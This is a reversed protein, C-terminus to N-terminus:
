ALAPTRGPVSPRRDMGTRPHGSLGTHGTPGTTAWLIVAFAVPTPARRAVILIPLAVPWRPPVIFSCSPAPWPTMLATARVMSILVDLCTKPSGIM